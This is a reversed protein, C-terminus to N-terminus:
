SYDINFINKNETKKKKKKKKKDKVISPNEMTYDLTTRNYTNVLKEKEERQKYKREKEQLYRNPRFTPKKEFMDEVSLGKFKEVIPKQPVGPAQINPQAVDLKKYDLLGANSKTKLASSLIYTFELTLSYDFNLLQIIDGNPEYM